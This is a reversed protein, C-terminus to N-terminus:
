QIGGRVADFANRNSESIKADALDAARQAVQEEDMGASPHIHQELHVTTNGSNSISTGAQGYTQVASGSVSAQGYIKPAKPKAADAAFDRNAQERAEVEEYTEAGSTEGQPTSDENQAIIDSYLGALTTAAAILAALTIGVPGLGLVMAVGAAAFEAVVIALFDKIIGLANQFADVVKQVVLIIGALALAFLIVPGAAELWAAAAIVGFAAITDGLVILVAKTVEMHSRFWKIVEITVNVATALGRFVAQLAHIAREVGSQILDRHAAIWDRVSGILENITPLLAGIIQNSIGRLSAHLAVNEEEFKKASAIASDDLVIGLKQAEERLEKIGGSGKNLLPILVAGSRGFLDMAAATKEVGDPMSKFRDAVIELVQDLKGHQIESDQTSIKLAKFGDAAPGTGKTRLEELGKALRQFSTGIEEASAGSLQGAYTLEQVAETSVGIRQAMREAEVGTTVFSEVLSHMKEIAEFGLYAELAHHLGEILEDGEHWSEKDPILSLEAAFEAVTTM